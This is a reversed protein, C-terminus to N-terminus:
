CGGKQSRAVGRASAAAGAGCVAPKRQGGAGVLVALYDLAARADREVLREMAAWVVGMHCARTSALVYADLLLAHTVGTGAVAAHIAAPLPQRQVGVAVFLARVKTEDPRWTHFYHFLRCLRGLSRTPIPDNSLLRAIFGRTICLHYFSTPTIIRRLSPDILSPTYVSDDGPDVRATSLLRLYIANLHRTVATYWARNVRAAACLAGSAVPMYVLIDALLEPFLLASAATGHDTPTTATAANDTDLAHTNELNAHPSDAGNPAHVTGLVPDASVMTTETLLIVIGQDHGCKTDLVGPPGVDGDGLASDPPVDKTPTTAVTDTSITLPATTALASQALADRTDAM